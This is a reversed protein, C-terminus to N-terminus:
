KWVKCVNLFPAYIWISARFNIVAMILYVADAWISINYLFCPQLSYLLFVHSIVSSYWFYWSCSNLSINCYYHLFFWSILNWFTVAASLFSLINNGKEKGYWSWSESSASIYSTCKTGLVWIPLLYIKGQPFSWIVTESTFAINSILKSVYDSIVPSVGFLSGRSLYSLPEHLCLIISGWYM